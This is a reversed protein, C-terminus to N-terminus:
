LPARRNRQTPAIPMTSISFSSRCRRFTFPSRRFEGIGFKRSSSRPRTGCGGRQGVPENAPDRILNSLRDCIVNAVRPRLVAGAAHHAGRSEAFWRAALAASFDGATLASGGRLGLAGAAFASPCRAGFMLPAPPQLLEREPRQAASSFARCAASRTVRQFPPVRARGGDLLDRPEGLRARRM